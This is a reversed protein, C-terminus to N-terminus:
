GSLTDERELVVSVITVFNVALISEITVLDVKGGNSTTLNAPLGHSYKKAHKSSISLLWFM